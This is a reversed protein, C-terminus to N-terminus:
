LQMERGQLARLGDTEALMEARLELRCGVDANQQIGIEDVDVDRGAGVVDFTEADLAEIAAVARDPRPADHEGTAADLIGPQEKGVPLDLRVAEAVAVIEDAAEETIVDVHRDALHQDIVPGGQEIR